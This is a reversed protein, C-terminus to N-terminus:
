NVTNFIYMKEWESNQVVQAQRSFLTQGSIKWQVSINKIKWCKRAVQAQRSFLAQGSHKLGSPSGGGAAGGRRARWQKQSLHSFPLNLSRACNAGLYAHGYVLLAPFNKASKPFINQIYNLVIPCLKFFKPREWSVRRGELMKDIWESWLWM